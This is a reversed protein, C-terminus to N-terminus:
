RVPVSNNNYPDPTDYCTIEGLTYYCYPESEAQRLRAEQPDVIEQCYPEDVTTHVISCDMDTAFSAVHDVVTRDTNVFASAAGAAIVEPGGCASLSLASVSAILLARM